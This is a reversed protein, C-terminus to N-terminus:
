KKLKDLAEKILDMHSCFNRIQNWKVLPWRKWVEECALELMQYDELRKEAKQARVKWYEAKDITRELAEAKELAEHNM